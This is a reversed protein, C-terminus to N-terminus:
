RTKCTDAHLSENITVETIIIIIVIVSNMAPSGKREREVFSVLLCVCCLFGEGAGPFSNFHFMCMSVQYPVTAMAGPGYGGLYESQCTSSSSSSSLSPSSILSLLSHEHNSKTKVYTVRWHAVRDSDRVCEKLFVHLM